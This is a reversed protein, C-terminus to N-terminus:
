LPSFGIINLYISLKEVSSFQTLIQFVITFTSIYNQSIKESVTLWAVAFALADKEKRQPKVESSTLRGQCGSSLRGPAKGPATRKRGPAAAFLLTAVGTSNGLHTESHCRVSRDAQRGESPLCTLEHFTLHFAITWLSTKSFFLEQSFYQWTPGKFVPFAARSRGAASKLLPPSHTLQAFFFSANYISTSTLLCGHFTLPVSVLSPCMIKHGPTELFSACLLVLKSWNCSIMKPCGSSQACTVLNVLFLIDGRPKSQVM